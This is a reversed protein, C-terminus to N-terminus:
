APVAQGRPHHCCADATRAPSPRSPPKACPADAAAPPPARVPTDRDPSESVNATLQRLIRKVEDFGHAPADMSDGIAAPVTRAGERLQTGQETLSVQVTREDDPRREGRVPGSAELRKILPTLTGYDLQLAAGIDKIPVSHDMM